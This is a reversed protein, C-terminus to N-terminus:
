PISSPMGMAMKNWGTSDFLTALAPKHMLLEMTPARLPRIWPGPSAMLSSMICPILPRHFSPTAM